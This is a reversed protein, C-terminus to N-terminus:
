PTDLPAMSFYTTWFRLINKWFRNNWDVINLFNCIFCSSAIKDFVESFLFQKAIISHLELLFTKNQDVFFTRLQQFSSALCLVTGAAPRSESPFSLVELHFCDKLNKIKGRPKKCFQSFIFWPIEDTYTRTQNM